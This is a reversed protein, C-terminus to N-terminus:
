YFGIYNHSTHQFSETAYQTFQLAAVTQYLAINISYLFNSEMQSGTPVDVHYLVHRLRSERGQRTSFSKYCSWPEAATHSQTSTQGTVRLVREGERERFTIPGSEPLSVVPTGQPKVTELRGGAALISDAQVGSHLPTIERERGGERYQKM